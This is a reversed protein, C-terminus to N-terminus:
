RPWKVIVIAGIIALIAGLVDGLDLKNQKTVAGWVVATAIFVGGYAEFVRGFNEPQVTNTFAYLILACVGLVALPVREMHEKWIWILNAGGLELVAALLFFPIAFRAPIKLDGIRM